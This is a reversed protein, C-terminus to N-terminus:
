LEKLLDHRSVAKHKAVSRLIASLTGIRLAKHVPVVLRQHSPHDTELVVHSGVQGTRRYDWARCLVRILQEGSLDRPLKM